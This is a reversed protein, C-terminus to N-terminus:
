CTKAAHGTVAVTDGAAATDVAAQITQGPCAVNITAAEAAGCTVFVIALASITRVAQRITM